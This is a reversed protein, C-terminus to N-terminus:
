TLGNVRQSTAPHVYIQPNNVRAPRPQNHYHNAFDDDDDEIYPEKEQASTAEERNRMAAVRDSGYRPDAGTDAPVFLEQEEFEAEQLEAPTSGPVRDAPQPPIRHLLGYSSIVSPAHAFLFNFTRPVHFLAGLYVAWSVKVV